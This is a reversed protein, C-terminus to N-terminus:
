NEEYGIYPEKQNLILYLYNLKVGDVCVTMIVKVTTVRVFAFVLKCASIYGFYIFYFELTIYLQVVTLILM